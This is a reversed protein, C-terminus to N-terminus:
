YACSCGRCCPPRRAANPMRSYTAAIAPRLRGATSCSHDGLTEEIRGGARTSRIDAKPPLASMTKQPAFTRKQGLASMRM